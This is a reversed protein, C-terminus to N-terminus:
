WILNPNNTYYGIFTECEVLKPKLGPRQLRPFMVFDSNGIKKIEM